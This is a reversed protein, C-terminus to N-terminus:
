KPYVVKTTHSIGAGSLNAFYVGGALGKANRNIKNRGSEMKGEFVTEVKRGPIDFIDLKIKQSRARQISAVLSGPNKLFNLNM